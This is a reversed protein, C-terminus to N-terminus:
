FLLTLVSYILASLIAAAPITIVWSSLIKGVVRLDISGIGRALGVGIVAGVLTHTTSVPMGLKSFVLVATAAGFEASFGRSPTISTIKTGVTEIVRHGFVALGLVIGVGGLALIWIPVESKLGVIGHRYITWIGALPGIGNAVDNAGHAFAVYGATFVQLFKFRGEVLVLQVRYPRGGKDSRGSIWVVAGAILGCVLASALASSLPLDLHLNKLGKYILSLIIISTTLGVFFPIVYVSAIIPARNELIKRQIVRFTLYAILAGSIPSVIWSIVINLINSWKIIHFGGSVLGFGVIAGVISHTTSVPLGLRNAFQLLLGSGFLSALLGLVLNFQRHEFFTPEVIGKRVTDTVHCGVLVAGILEAIMGILIAQRITIAKSGVSTGFANAFDNAGGMFSAYFAIIVASILVAQPIEM